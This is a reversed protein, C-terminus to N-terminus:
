FCSILLSFLFMTVKPTATRNVRVKYTFNTMSFNHFVFAGGIRAGHDYNKRTLYADLDEERDFWILM